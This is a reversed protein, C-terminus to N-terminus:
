RCGELLGPLHAYESFCAQAELEGVPRKRYGETFLFFPAGASHSTEADIESDGVYAIEDPSVGCGAAAAILAGPDPKRVDLTDGGIVVDFLESVGLKALISRSPGEDKNTCVGLRFGRAALLHLAHAVGPFLRSHPYGQTAYIQKFRDVAGDGAVHAIGRADLCRLVLMDIGNGIFSTITALDIPESGLEALLTSAAAQLDAASEVLTGDLDFIVARIM